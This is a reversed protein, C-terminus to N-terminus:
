KLFFLNLNIFRDAHLDSFLIFSTLIYKDLWYYNDRPAIRPIGAPDIREYYYRQSQDCSVTGFLDFADIKGNARGAAEISEAREIRIVSASCHSIIFNILEDKKLKSINKIGKEKALEQLEKLKLNQLDKVTM